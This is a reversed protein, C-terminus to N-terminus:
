MLLSSAAAIIAYDAPSPTTTTIVCTPLLVFIDKKWTAQM